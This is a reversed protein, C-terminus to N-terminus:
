KLPSQPVPCYSIPLPESGADSLGPLSTPGPVPTVFSAVGDQDGEQNMMAKATSTLFIVQPPCKHFTQHQREVGVSTRGLPLDSSALFSALSCLELPVAAVHLEPRQVTISHPKEERGGDQERCPHPVARHAQLERCRCPWAGRRRAGKGAHEKRKKDRGTVSNTKWPIHLWSYFGM